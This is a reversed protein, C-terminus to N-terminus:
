FSARLGLNLSIPTGVNGYDFGFAGVGRTGATNGNVSPDAGTYNTILILDNGTLFVSLSKFYRLGKLRAQPFTYNVTLDRLRFANIDKEIFEEEPMTTFFQQDYYPVVAITNRTPNPSNQLGDNLVGEVVRPTMRDATRLSRGIRTLYMETANFVDGGVRLDWLMSFRLTKHTLTNLIGLTFDPNRDGLKIFQASSPMTLPLGTTANILIDGNNNRQYGLGTITTTPGGVMLGARANGYLWTDSIYFEPVNAPLELVENRMRNFNLRTSWRTSKTQVPVMDIAVEVGKNRNAGINLTNLVFGTGYSARFLEVILDTNKTNYYTADVNFRNNFMRVEVGMEYTSQKEPRLLENANTFGYYYGGGSGTNINFTSQNAYPASTRATNARSGRLKLYNIVKGKMSPILDSLMVSLSGAPYNYKRFEKPFVSSEEFRHSYTLFIASNWNISAEGFYAAQRYLSKNPDDNQFRTANSLKTRISNTLNSDPFKGIM